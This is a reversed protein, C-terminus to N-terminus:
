TAMGAERKDSCGRAEFRLHTKGCSGEDLLSTFAVSPELIVMLLPSELVELRIIFGELIQWSRGSWPPPFGHPNVM